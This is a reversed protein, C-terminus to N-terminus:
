VCTAEEFFRAYREREHHHFRKWNSPHPVEVYPLGQRKCEDAAIMGCAIARYFRPLARRVAVLDRASYLPDYANTFALDREPLYDLAANLYSSSRDLRYFPLDHNTVNTNVQEGVILWQADVSGIVGNPLVRGMSRLIPSLDKNLFAISDFEYDYRVYSTERAYLKRYAQFIRYLKREADVYDGRRNIPDFKDKRKEFWNDRVLEWRPLCLVECVDRANVLRRLLRHGDGKLRDCRRMVQGYVAESAFSRDIVVNNLGELSALIQATYLDLLEQGNFNPYLGNHLYDYGREEVLKKALWTKGAGDPGELIIVHAVNV